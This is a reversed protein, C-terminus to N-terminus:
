KLFTPKKNYIIDFPTVQSLEKKGLLWLTILLGVFGFM